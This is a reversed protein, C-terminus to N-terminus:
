WTLKPPGPYWKSVPDGDDVDYRYSPVSVETNPVSYLRTVLASRGSRGKLLVNQEAPDKKASPVRAFTAPASGAALPTAPLYIKGTLKGIRAVFKEGVM